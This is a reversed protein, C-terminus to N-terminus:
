LLLYSHASVIEGVHHKIKKGLDRFIKSKQRKLPATNLDDAQGLWGNAGFLKKHPSRVQRASDGLHHRDISHFDCIETAEDVPSLSHNSYGDLVFTAQQSAVIDEDYVRVSPKRQIGKHLPVDLM